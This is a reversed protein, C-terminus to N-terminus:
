KRKKKLWAAIDAYTVRGVNRYNRLKGNAMIKRVATLTMCDIHALVNSSKWTLGFHPHASDTIYRKKAM